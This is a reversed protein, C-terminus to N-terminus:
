LFALTALEIAAAHLSVVRSWRIVRLTKWRSWLIVLWHSTWYYISSIKGPLMQASTVATGRISRFRTKVISLRSVRDKDIWDFPFEFALASVWNLRNAIGRNWQPRAGRNNSSSAKNGLNRLLKDPKGARNAIETNFKNRSITMRIFVPPQHKELIRLSNGIFFPFQTCAKEGHTNDVVLKKYFFSFLFGIDTRKSVVIFRWYFAASQKTAIIICFSSAAPHSTDTGSRWEHM